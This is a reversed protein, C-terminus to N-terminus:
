RRVEVRGEKGLKSIGGVEQEERREVRREGGEEQGREKDEVWRM